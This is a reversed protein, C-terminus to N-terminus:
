MPGIEFQYSTTNIRRRAIVFENQSPATYVRHQTSVVDLLVADNKPVIGNQWSVTNVDSDRCWKAVVDFQYPVTKSVVEDRCKTTNVTRHKSVVGIKCSVENVRRRRLVAGDQCSTTDVRRRTPVVSDKCSRAKVIHRTPVAGNQCSATNVRRRTSVVDHQCSATNVRRHMPLVRIPVGDDQCSTM